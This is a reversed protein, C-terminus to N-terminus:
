AFEVKLAAGMTKANTWYAGCVPRAYDPYRCFQLTENLVCGAPCPTEAPPFVDCFPGGAKGCVETLPDMQCGGHALCGQEDTYYHVCDLAECLNRQFNYGCYPPQCQTYPHV